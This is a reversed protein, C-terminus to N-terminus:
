PEPKIEELLVFEDQNKTIKYNKLYDINYEDYYRFELTNDQFPVVNTQVYFILVISMNPDVSVIEFIPSRDYSGGSKTIFWFNSKIKLNKISQNRVKLTLNFRHELQGTGGYDPTKNYKSGVLNLLPIVQNTREQLSEKYQKEALNFMDQQAEVSKSMEEVQQKLSENSIKLEEAQMMLAKTNQKLEEGQQKYGLYLFFFALPAFIGALFDGLENSTLLTLNGWNSIIFAITYIILILGYVFLAWFEWRTHFPKNESPVNEDSM